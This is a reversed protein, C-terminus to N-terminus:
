IHVNIKNFKIKCILHRFVMRFLRHNVTAMQVQHIKLFIGRHDQYSGSYRNGSNGSFFLSVAGGSLTNIVSLTPSQYQNVRNVVSNITGTATNACEILFKNTTSSCYENLFDTHVFFNYFNAFENSKHNKQCLHCAVSFIKDHLNGSILQPFKNMFYLECFVRTHSRLRSHTLSRLNTDIHANPWFNRWFHVLLCFFVRFTLSM